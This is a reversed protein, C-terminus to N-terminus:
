LPRGLPAPVIEGSFRQSTSSSISFKRTHFLQNDSKATRRNACKNNRQCKRLRIRRKSFCVRVIRSAMKLLRDITIFCEDARSFPACIQKVIEAVSVEPHSIEPARNQIVFACERQISMM